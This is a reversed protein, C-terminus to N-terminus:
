RVPEAARCARTDIWLTLTFYTYPSGGIHPNPVWWLWWQYKSVELAVPVREILCDAAKVAAFRARRVWTVLWRSQTEFCRNWAAPGGADRTAEGEERRCDGATPHRVSFVGFKPDASASALVAGGADKFVVEADRVDGYLQRDTRLAVDHGAVHLAGHTVARWYGWGLVGGALAAVALLALLAARM